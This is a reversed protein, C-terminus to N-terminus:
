FRVSIRRCSVTTLDLATRSRCVLGKILCLLPKAHKSGFENGTYLAYIFRRTRHLFSDVGLPLWKSM